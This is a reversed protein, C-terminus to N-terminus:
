WIGARDRDTENEKNWVQVYHFAKAICVRSCKLHSLLSFLIWNRVYYAVVDGSSCPRFPPIVRPRIGTACISVLISSNLILSLVACFCASTGASHNPQSFVDREIVVLSKYMSDASEFSNWLFEIFHTPILLKRVDVVPLWRLFSKNRLFVHFFLFGNLRESWAEVTLITYAHSPACSRKNKHTKHNIDFWNPCSFRFSFSRGAAASPFTLSPLHFLYLLEAIGVACHAWISPFSCSGCGSSTAPSHFLTQGIYNLNFSIANSFYLNHEGRYFNRESPYHKEISTCTNRMYDDVDDNNNLVWKLRIYLSIEFLMTAWKNAWEKSSSITSDSIKVTQTQKLELWEVSNM